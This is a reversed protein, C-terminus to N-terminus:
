NGIIIKITDDKTNLDSLPRLILKYKEKLVLTEVNDIKIELTAKGKPYIEWYRKLFKPSDFVFVKTGNNLYPLIQKLEM